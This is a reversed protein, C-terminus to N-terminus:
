PEGAGSLELKLLELQLGAGKEWEAPKKCTCVGAAKGEEETKRRLM